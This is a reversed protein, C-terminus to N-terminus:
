LHIPGDGDGRNFHMQDLPTDRGGSGLLATLQPSTALLFNSPGRLFGAARLAARWAGHSQNSVILDVGRAELAQRACAIVTRADAPDCFGDVISGLRMAGFHKHAALQTDLLVAWGLLQGRRRVKLCIYKKCAVPYNVDLVARNRVACVAYRTKCTEWLEDAPDLFRDEMHVTVSPDRPLPRDLGQVAQLGLWGLGSAALFDFLYARPSTRRLYDINHLFAAPHLVRFYFPVKSIRWGAATLLQPLREDYGGMGLGYLLPQRRLAEKLLGVGLPMYAPDVIGESIPLAYYGIRNVRQAIWFDQQRLIYGGRVIQQDDVAVYYEDGPRLEALKPMTDRVGLVSPDSQRAGARLRVDFARVAEEVAASYPLVRIRM